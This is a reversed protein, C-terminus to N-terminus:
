PQLESTNEEAREGRDRKRKRRARGDEAEVIGSFDGTEVVVGGAVRVAENERSAGEAGHIDGPRAARQERADFIVPHDAADAAVRQGALVAQDAPSVGGASRARRRRGGESPLQAQTLANGDRGAIPWQWEMAPRELPW